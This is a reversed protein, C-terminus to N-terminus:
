TGLFFSASTSPAKKPQLKGWTKKCTLGAQDLGERVQHWLLSGIRVHRADETELDEFLLTGLIVIVGFLSKLDRVESFLFFLFLLVCAVFTRVVGHAVFLGAALSRFSVKTPLM